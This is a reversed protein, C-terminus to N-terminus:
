LRTKSRPNTSTRSLFFSIVDAFEALAPDDISSSNWSPMLCATISPLFGALFDKLTDQFALGIVLSMAGLSALIASTNVGWVNLIMIFGIVMFLYKIISTILGLLTNKRADDVKSMKFKSIRKIASIILLYIISIVFFILLTQVLQQALLIKILEM